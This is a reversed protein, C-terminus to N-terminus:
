KVAELFFMQDPRNDIMDINELVSERYNKQEVKSFGARRFLLSLTEYDYMYKEKNAHGYGYFWSNIKDCMTEGKFRDRGNYQQFFFDKDGNVYKKSIELLDQVAFRAIGGTKLIGYVERIIEEGRKRSFYNIASICVIVEASNKPFPLSKKSIDMILDAKYNMDVNFYGPISPDGGCLNIKDARNNKFTYAVRNRIKHFFYRLREHLKQARYSHLISATTNM